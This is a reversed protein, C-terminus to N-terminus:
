AKFPVKSGGKQLNLCCQLILPFYKPLSCLLPSFLASTQSHFLSRVAAVVAQLPCPKQLTFCLDPVSKSPDQRDNSDSTYGSLIRGSELSCSGFRHDWLHDQNFETPWVFLIFCVVFHLILRLFGWFFGHIYSLFQQSQSIYYSISLNVPTYNDSHANDLWSLSLSSVGYFSLFCKQSNIRWETRDRFFFFSFISFEIRVKLSINKNKCLIIQEYLWLNCSSTGNECHDFVRSPAKHTHKDVWKVWLFVLLSMSLFYNKRVM